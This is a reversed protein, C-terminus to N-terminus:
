KPASGNNFPDAAGFTSSSITAHATSTGAGAASAGGARTTDSATCKVM